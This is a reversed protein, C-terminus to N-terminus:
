SPSDTATADRIEIEPKDVRSREKLNEGEYVRKTATIFMNYGEEEISQVILNKSVLLESITRPTFGNYHFDYPNMQAGYLVNLIHKDLDLNKNDILHRAAWMINPLILRIEGNPKLIRIWEDLVKSHEDRNFHELVHSSFVVDFEDNAFPLNRVDARYDPNCAENIDVRIPKGEPFDRYLPGCGLDIVKKENCNTIPQRLPLSNPPLSYVKGTYIDVHQAIVSADCYVKYKTEKAIRHFFYLDETWMEANNKADLFDEKDITVFWPPQMQKLLEVRIMTCDMGLGTVEFFEGFKWDWFSGEGNGRFVLPAPPDSKSCYVGGVVGCDLVNEMRFIFQRLTHPPNITDDGIFWLYKANQKIAEKVIENRAEAVPRSHIISFVTNYNIPPNISKFAFAWDLSVPRGLTPVGIVLGPM